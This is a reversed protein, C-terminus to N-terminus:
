SMGGDVALVQGTVYGARETFLFGVLAAVEEARGLRGLPIREELEAPELGALMDTAIFGPAVCNVTIARKALEQALSKTAGVLGAKSAAYNAQGRNGRLGAVSTITVIRGGDRLRTMPLVLPALVNYFGGLNTALVGDWQEGKMAALENRIEDLIQDDTLTTTM